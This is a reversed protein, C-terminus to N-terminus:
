TEADLARTLDAVLDHGDEVGVSVRLLGPGIGLARRRAEPLVAHSMTDPHQVLTDTTGLTPALTVVRLRDVM